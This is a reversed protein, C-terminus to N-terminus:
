FTLLPEPSGILWSLAYRLLKYLSFQFNEYYDHAETAWGALADGQYPPPRPNSDRGLSRSASSVGQVTDIYGGNTM